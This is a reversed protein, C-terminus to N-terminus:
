LPLEFACRPYYVADVAAEADPIGEAEPYGIEPRGEESTEVADDVAVLLEGWDDARAIVAVVAEDEETADCSPDPSTYPGLGVAFLQDALGAGLSAGWIDPDLEDCPGETDPVADVDLAWMAGPWALETDLASVMRPNNWTATCLATTDYQDGDWTEDALMLTLVHYRLSTDEPPPYPEGGVITIQLKVQMTVPSFPEPPPATDQPATDGTEDASATDDASKGSCALLTLLTLPAM